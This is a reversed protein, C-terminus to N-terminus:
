RLSLLVRLLEIQRPPSTAWSTALMTRPTSLRQLHNVLFELVDFEELRLELKEGRLTVTKSIVDVGSETV